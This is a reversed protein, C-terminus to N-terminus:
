RVQTMASQPLGLRAYLLIVTNILPKWALALSVAERGRTGTGQLFHSFWFFISVPNNFVFSCLKHAQLNRLSDANYVVSSSRRFLHDLSSHNRLNIQWGQSVSM